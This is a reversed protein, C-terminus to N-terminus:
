EHNVWLGEYCAAMKRAVAEWTYNASVFMRGREGMERLAERPLDMVEAITKALCEPSNDVWWGIREDALCKWPTTRSAIVPKGHALADIVVGGFNETFSPLVLVDCGSYEAGLEAGHKEGLFLVSPLNSVNSLNSLDSVSSLNTSLGLKDCLALLM